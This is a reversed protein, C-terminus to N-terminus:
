AVPQFLQVLNGEPDRLTAIRLGGYDTPREIFDVGAADLRQFDGDLDDTDFGVMHRYPDSARGKVESHTGLGLNSGDGHGLVAFGPAEQAVKLGLVDRYFPLLKYHDESWITAGSLGKIMAMSEKRADFEQTIPIPELQLQEQEPEGESESGSGARRLTVAVLVALATVIITCVIATIEFGQIFAERASELLAPGVPDPLQGAVEVAGGLTDRATEADETSVGAPIANDVRSRYVATGISGLTAIGMAGGFEAGTEAIASAAGAKEPPATGVVFDTAITFLPALGISLLTSGAVVLALGSGVDVQTLVLFGIDALVLGAIMVYAPRTRRVMYPTLQAGVIFGGAFPLSWFGAELPSLGRVLQLYQAIFVFAGFAAIAGLLYTALPASFAPARFLRLDILPDALTQQRRVFVAGAALGALVSAVPVWGLGDQAFQKLGYIMALVAALSMGASLLDLRGAEPDKYEPLLRPGLILLLVMVPVALLFVSGWWFFELLVGGLVPGIAAGVSYSTIWVGIAVTRQQPDHFMNRILSLTSPAITAGAIGLLARTVILTEASTSFAALVSTIGFIVAGILLLRRRGIRDGLTGMTILLGAVMFGYIDVIWLLEASSPQLDASLSPVALNLVTLDMAYLMCPLALVALGIWERSTARPADILRATM